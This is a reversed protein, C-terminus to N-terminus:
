NTHRDGLVGHGAHTVEGMRADCLMLTPRSPAITRHLLDQPALGDVVIM